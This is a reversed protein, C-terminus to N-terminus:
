VGRRQGGGGAGPAVMITMVSRSDRSELAGEVALGSALVRRGGFKFSVQAGTSQRLDVPDPDIGGRGHRQGAPQYRALMRDALIERRWAFGM